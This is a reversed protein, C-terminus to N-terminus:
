FPIDDNEIRLALIEEEHITRQLNVIALNFQSLLQIIDDSEIKDIVQIRKSSSRYVLTIEFQKM